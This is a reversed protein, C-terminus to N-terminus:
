ATKPAKDKQPASEKVEKQPPPELAEQAFLQSKREEVVEQFVDLFANQIDPPLSEFIRKCVSGVFDRASDTETKVTQKKWPSGEGTTLWDENVGFETCIHGIVSPALKRAKTEWQCITQQTVRLRKAFQEQTLRNYKRIWKVRMNVNYDM